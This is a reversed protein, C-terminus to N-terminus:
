QGSNSDTNQDYKQDRVIFGYPLNNSSNIFHNLLSNSHLIYPNGLGIFEGHGKEYNEKIASPSLFSRKSLILFWGKGLYRYHTHNPDVVVAWPVFCDIRLKLMKKKNFIRHWWRIFFYGLARIM